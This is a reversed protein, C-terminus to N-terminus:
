RLGVQFDSRGIGAEVLHVNFGEDRLRFLQYVGSFGAGIIVVEFNKINKKELLNAAM